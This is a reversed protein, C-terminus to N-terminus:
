YLYLLIMYLTFSSVLVGIFLYLFLVFYILFFLLLYDSFSTLILNLFSFASEGHVLGRM